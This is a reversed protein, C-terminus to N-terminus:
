VLDMCVLSLMQDLNMDVNMLHAEPPDVIIRMNDSTFELLRSTLKSIADKYSLSKKLLSIPSLLKEDVPRL